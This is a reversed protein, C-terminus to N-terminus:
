NEGVERCFFMMLEEKKKVCMTILRWIQSFLFKHKILDGGGVREAENPRLSLQCAGSIKKM